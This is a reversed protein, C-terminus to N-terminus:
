SKASLVLIVSIALCKLRPQVRNLWIEPQGAVGTRGSSGHEVLLSKRNPRRYIAM